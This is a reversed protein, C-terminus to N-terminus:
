YIKFLRNTTYTRSSVSLLLYFMRVLVPTQGFPQMTTRYKESKLENAYDVTVVEYPVRLEELTVATIQTYPSVIIGHVKVVM